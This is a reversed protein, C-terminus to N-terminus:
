ELKAEVKALNEKALKKHANDDSDKVPLEMVKQYSKKALDWEKMKQYTIGLELHHNIHGPKIEIARNFHKVAEENSAPPLGGYLVKAFAKLIGSLNAVERHWRALVHHAGDHNPDLELAKLAEAKVEKSLSVKTKGGAQLAVRGVAVALHFHSEANGPCSAVAKRGFIEAKQYLEKQEKEAAQEGIDVYARSIKWLADCNNSDANFANLYSKLANENDFTDYFNDGRALLQAIEADSVTTEQANQALVWSATFVLCILVSWVKNM